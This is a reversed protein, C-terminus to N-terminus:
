ELTDIIIQVSRELVGSAMALVLGYNTIPVKKDKASLIRNNMETPTVMCAGCHVILSYQELDEPYDHGHSFSFQLNKNTIKQLAKPIKVHGIDEHSRNHTCVEAILVKDNNKLENVAHVGDLFSHIDGKQRAMLVSFSTLPIDQPVIESVIPFAQSDTVVLDVKKTNEITKALQDETTVHCIMSNDLCDRIFQVQPLILRGAPAGSDIPVVLIITSEPPLLGGILSKAEVSLSSLEKAIRFKLKKISDPQLVSTAVAHEFRDLLGTCAQEETDEKTVVLLHPIKKKVLKEKFAIYANEDFGTPSITYLAFDTQDLVKNTKALREKGLVTGDNLGATDVLVIPGYPLLEMSKKVPDTTTGSIDSVISNASGTIANFLASKGSNTEGFISVHLRNSQPTTNLTENKM